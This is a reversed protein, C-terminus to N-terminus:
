APDLAAAKQRLLVREVRELAIEVTEAPLLPDRAAERERFEDVDLDGLV